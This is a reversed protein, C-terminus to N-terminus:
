LTVLQPAEFADACVLFTSGVNARQVALGWSGFGVGQPGLMTCARFHQRPWLFVIGGPINRGGDAALSAWRSCWPLAIWWRESAAVSGMDKGIHEKALLSMGSTVFSNLSEQAHLCGCSLTVAQTRSAGNKMPRPYTRKLCVASLSM